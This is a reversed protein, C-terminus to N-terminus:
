PPPFLFTPAINTPAPATHLPTSVRTTAWLPSSRPPSRCPAFGPRAPSWWPHGPEEKPLALHAVVHAPVLAVVLTGVRSWVVGAGVPSGDVNTLKICIVASQDARRPHDPVRTIKHFRMMAGQPM